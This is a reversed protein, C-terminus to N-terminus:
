VCNTLAKLITYKGVMKTITKSSPSTLKLGYDYEGEGIDSNQFSSIVVNINPTGIIGGSTLTVGTLETDGTKISIVETLSLKVGDSNSIEFCATYSSLDYPIKDSEDSWALKMERDNGEYVEWNVIITPSKITKVRTAM